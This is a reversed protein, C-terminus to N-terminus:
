AMVAEVLRLAGHRVPDVCPIGLEREYEECVQAAELDSEIHFTNLALGATKPRPFTGCAEALDEYLEIIDGLRPIKVEPLRYLHEQGARHCMILHTPCAGRILPLTASSAPHVISGQGEIIILEADPTRMVEREVAGPAFDLRIADLPIGRGTVTIGIQGTAVFEADIGEERAVRYIELGATMKGVAMDTGVLLMRRNGLKAPAGSSNTIGEPEIRVDWIWQGSELDPYRPGLLDHLGNLVSMGGRVAEDIEPMWSDPILGGGPAIGLVLVEAGLALAEAVTAVIPVTRPMNAVTGMDSGANESDIVCVIPNSSYRIVGHGMKGAPSNTNGEMFIALKQNKELM